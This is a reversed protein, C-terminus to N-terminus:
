SLRNQAVYGLMNVPDKASGFPPAYALELDALDVALLGASTATAIVDIRKGVGDRGVVQAGLIAGTVLDVLLKMALAQAAPYYSVHRLLHTHIALYARGSERLRKENWGATAAALDFVKVIATAITRRPRVEHGAIHDAVRRGHRNAVNALPVLSPSGDLVDTKDTADKIAYITHNSTRSFEDFVIGGRPGIALGAAAALSTDLRVGIAAVVLDSSLTEGSSLTLSSENIASVSVGLRLNVDHRRLETAVWSAMEPDLPALVLDTAEIVATAIGRRRLNEAVELGIFGGGIVVIRQGM